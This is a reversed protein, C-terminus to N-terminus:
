GKVKIMEKARDVLFLYGSEDFYGVDGTRFWGDGDRARELGAEMMYGLMLNPGRILLEGPAGGECDRGEEDVVRAEVGPLLRGVSGRAPGEVEDERQSALSPSAETMGYWQTVVCGYRACLADGINQKLPAAANILCRLSSLDRTRGERANLLALAIPPVVNVHTIREREVADLLPGVEFRKFVVIPAGQCVYQCCFGALGLIHFFPVALVLVTAPAFMGALAACQQHINAVINAHTLIM